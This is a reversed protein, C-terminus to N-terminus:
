KFFKHVCAKSLLETAIKRRKFSGDVGLRRLWCSCTKHTNRVLGLFGVIKKSRSSLEYECGHLDNPTVFTLPAKRDFDILPGYYVAVLFITKDTQQYQQKVLSLENQIEFSKVRASSWVAIYIIAVTIPVSLACYFFPLGVIIFLMASFFIMLQFTTERFLASIFTSNLTSMIGEGAIRKIDSDDEQTYPRVVVFRQSSSPANMKDAILELLKIKVLVWTYSVSDFHCTNHCFTLFVNKFEM